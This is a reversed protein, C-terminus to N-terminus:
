NKSIHFECITSKKIDKIFKLDTKFNLAELFKGNKSYYYIRLDENYEVLVLYFVGVVREYM